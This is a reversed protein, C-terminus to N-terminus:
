NMGLQWLTKATKLRWTPLRGIVILMNLPLPSPLLKSKTLAHRGTKAAELAGALVDGLNDDDRADWFGKVLLELCNWEADRDTRWQFMRKVLADLRRDSEALDNNRALDRNCHLHV